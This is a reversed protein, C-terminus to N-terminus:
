FSAQGLGKEDVGVVREPFVVDVKLAGDGTEDRKQIMVLERGLLHAFHEVIDLAFADHFVAVSQVTERMSEDIGKLTQADLRNRGLQMRLDITKGVGNGLMRDLNQGFHGFSELVQRLAMVQDQHGLARDSFLRAFHLARSQFFIEGCTSITASFSRRLKRAAHDFLVFEVM